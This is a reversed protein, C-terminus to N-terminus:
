RKGTSGFGGEARETESLEEVEDVEVYWVPKVVMQAIKMGKEVIFTEKGHNILVVGVEGRYGEDITGPTNLVTIGHKLALGSRPRVQAETQPPLEIKIGTKILATESPNIKVEEVSYLDLGADGQNAYNPIIAENHIKQVKLKLKNM